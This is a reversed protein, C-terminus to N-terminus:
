AQDWADRSSCQEERSVGLHPDGKLTPFSFFATGGEWPEWWVLLLSGEGNEEGRGGIVKRTTKRVGTSEPDLSNRRAYSKWRKTGPGGPECGNKNKKMDFQIDAM